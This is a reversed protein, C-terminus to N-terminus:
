IQKWSFPKNWLHISNLTQSFCFEQGEAGEDYKSSVVRRHGPHIHERAGRSAKGSGDAKSLLLLDPNWPPLHSSLTPNAPHLSCPQLVPTLAEQPPSLSLKQKTDM